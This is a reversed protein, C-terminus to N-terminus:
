LFRGMGRLTEFPTTLCDGQTTGGANGIFFTSKDIVFSAGGGDFRYYVRSNQHYTIHFVLMGNSWLCVIASPWVKSDLGLARAVNEAGSSQPKWAGSQCIHM